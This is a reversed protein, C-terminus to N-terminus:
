KLFDDRVPTFTDLLTGPKLCICGHMVH